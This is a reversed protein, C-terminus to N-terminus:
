LLTSGLKILIYLRFPTLDCFDLLVYCRSSYIVTIVVIILFSIISLCHYYHYYEQLYLMYIHVRVERISTADCCNIKQSNEVWLETIEPVVNILIPGFTAGGRKNWVSRNNFDLFWTTWSGGVGNNWGGCWEFNSCRKSKWM